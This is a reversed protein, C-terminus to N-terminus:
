RARLAANVLEDHERRVAAWREFSRLQEHQTISPTVASV